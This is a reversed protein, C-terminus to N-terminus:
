NITGDYIMLGAIGFSQQYDIWNFLEKSPLGFFQAGCVAVNPSRFQKKIINQKPYDILSYPLVINDKLKQSKQLL